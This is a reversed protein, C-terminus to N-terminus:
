TSIVRYPVPLCVAFKWSSGHQIVDSAGAAKIKAIFSADTTEPVVVSAPYGLSRAATVAALGANGGSSSFFHLPKPEASGHGHHAVQQLILNGIGRSKFSSAPQLNELKLFIRCGAARSLISSELLPTEIWPLSFDQMGSSGM